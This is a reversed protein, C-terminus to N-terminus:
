EEDAGKDGEFCHKFRLTHFGLDLLVDVIEPLHLANTATVVTTAGLM